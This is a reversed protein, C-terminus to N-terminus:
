DDRSRRGESFAWASVAAYWVVVAVGTLPFGRQGLQYALFLTVVLVAVAMLIRIM